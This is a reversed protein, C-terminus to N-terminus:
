QLQWNGTQGGFDFQTGFNVEPFLADVLDIHGADLMIDGGGTALGLVPEDGLLGRVDDFGV